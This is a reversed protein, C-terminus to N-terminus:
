SRYDANISVYDATLDCTYVTARGRGVGVDVGVVLEAQKFYTAGAEETYEPAVGGNRAVPISGFRIALKDRDAAEGSKGVAMVIRGWNPDNGAIATKVLPSNAIALGIRRAAVDSEAGTVELTVFKSLGEGDKVVQLALDLTLANLADRFGALRPDDPREIWGGRASGAKGTAFAILTDSTSTDGDVSVANFSRDAAAALLPQLATAAVPADTAIFSLMTAMDPAIMGSGKAIGNLTVRVGEIEASRTALKPYTDTTMIASAAEAWADPRAKGALGTLQRTIVGADFPQGIVGTSAIYVAEAPAEVIRAAAEATQRVTDRGAQGTFANSNGSNVVLARAKGHRLAGRCWEVPAGATKSRTFVGAVATGEAFTMLLLDTRGKYKIGAACTAIAVGPVAPMLPAKEPAFRSRQM